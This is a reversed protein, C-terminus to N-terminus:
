PLAPKATRRARSRGRGNQKPSFPQTSAAHLRLGWDIIFRTKRDIDRQRSARLLRHVRASCPQTGLLHLAVRRVRLVPDQRAVRGLLGVVDFSMPESKCRRCGIAHIALRRVRSSRDCLAKVLAPEDRRTARHDLQELSTMRARWSAARLGSVPDFTM